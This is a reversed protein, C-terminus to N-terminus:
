RVLIRYYRQAGNTVSDMFAGTGNTAPINTDLSNWNTDTINTKYELVYTFNTQAPSYDLTVTNSSLSVTISPPSGVIALTAPDSRISGFPNSVIVDYSGADNTQVDNLRYFPGVAGAITTANYRWQYSLEGAGAATVTFTASGGVLASQNSPQVLIAPSQVVALAAPASTVAGFSNTVVVSYNGANNTQVSAIVYNSGTAGSVPVGNFQWQYSFPSSGAPLVSFTAPAGVSVTQNSPQGVISPAVGVALVAQTSLLSGFSNSVVVAYAGLNTRQVNVITYSNSVAGALNTADFQWQYSLNGGGATVAFTANSGLFVAQNTPQATIFPPGLVNLVASANTVGARNTVVVTYAGDNSSQVNAITFNTGTAGAINTGKFQWQYSLPPTGTAWVTFIANSGEPVTLNQPPSLITPLIVLGVPEGTASGVGNTVTVLYNGTNTAQVNTLVLFSNTAGAINTGNFAWQYGLPPAGGVVVSFATTAGALVPFVAAAGTLVNSNVMESIILPPEILIAPPASTVSGAINSVSVTYNGSNTAQVSNLVLNSSTAGPISAGNFQWQYSLPSTGTAVVSFVANSGFAVTENTPEVLIVPLFTLTAPVSTISGFSNSVTVAYPGSNTLNSGTTYSGATANPIPTGNFKWQYALPPDGAAAVAFTAPTGPPLAQSVPQMTISPAFHLIVVSSTASGYTDTVVVDYPGANTAFFSYTPGTARPIDSGQLQWQYSLASDGSADVKLTLFGGNTPSPASELTVEFPAALQYAGIDAKHLPRPVGREDTAPTVKPSLKGHAPSNTGIAMTETEGGNDQLPGLQASTKKKSTKGLAISNDASINYGGDRIAGYGGGGSLNTDVISNILTIAGRANAINGGHGGGKHGNAAPFQGSGALGNTGGFAGCTSFTCNVVVISRGANYLGGGSGTGGDGGDGANLNGSGGNGGSGGSVTDDFFTCNTLVGVGFNCIGAGQSNGGVPGKLGNGNGSTGGTAGSGATATNGSFTSNLITMVNSSYIGSGSAAGGASGAGPLGATFGTGNTGGSGGNGGVASNASLTCNSLVLAGLNYIAGGYGASGVGGRGGNGGHSLQGGGNGGNGGNGGDGGTASNTTLTCDILTLSGLNFIAGGLAPNSSLGNRGNGGSGDASDSGNAGANSVTVNTVVMSNTTVTLNTGFAINTFLTIQNTSVGFQNVYVFNNTFVYGNPLASSDNFTIFNTVLFSSINTYIFINTYTFNTPYTTFNTQFGNTLFTTVNTSNASSAVNGALICNSMTVSAGRHIYLGGGNTSLGNTITLDSILINSTGSAVEFVRSRGGADIVTAGAGNITTDSDDPTILISNTITITGSGLDDLLDQLTGVGQARGAPVWLLWVALALLPSLSPWTTRWAKAQRTGEKGGSQDFPRFNKLIKSVAREPENPGPVPSGEARM